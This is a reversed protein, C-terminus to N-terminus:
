STRNQQDRAMWQERTYVKATAPPTGLPAVTFGADSTAINTRPDRAFDRAEADLEFPGVRVPLGAITAHIYRDVRTM